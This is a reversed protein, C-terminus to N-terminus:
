CTDVTGSSGFLAKREVRQIECSWYSFKDTSTEPSHVSFIAEFCHRMVQKGFM